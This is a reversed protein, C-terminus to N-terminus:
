YGGEEYDILPADFDLDSTKKRRRIGRMFLDPDILHKQEQYMNDIQYINIRGLQTWWVRTGDRYVNLIPHTVAMSGGRNRGRARYKVGEEDKMPNDREEVLEVFFEIADREDWFEQEQVEICYM